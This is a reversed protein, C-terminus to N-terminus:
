DSKLTKIMFMSSMHHIENGLKKMYPEMQLAVQRHELGLLQSCVVVGDPFGELLHFQLIWHLLGLLFRSHLLSRGGKTALSRGKKTLALAARVSTCLVDYPHRGHEFRWDTNRAHEEFPSRLKCLSTVLAMPTEAARTLSHLPPLLQNSARERVLIFSRSWSFM